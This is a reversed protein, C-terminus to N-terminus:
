FTSYKRRLTCFASTLILVINPATHRILVCLNASTELTLNTLYNRQTFCKTGCVLTVPESTTKCDCIKLIELIAM